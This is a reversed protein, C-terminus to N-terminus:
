LFYLIKVSLKKNRPEKKKACPDKKCLPDKKKCLPKKLCLLESKQVPSMKQAGSYADDTVKSLDCSISM